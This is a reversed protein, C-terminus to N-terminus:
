QSPPNIKDSWNKKFSWDLVQIFMLEVTIICISFIKPHWGDLKERIESISIKIMSLIGLSHYNHQYATIFIEYYFTFHTKGRWLKEVHFHSRLMPYVACVLSWSCMLSLELDNQVPSYQTEASELQSSDLKIDTHPPPAYHSLPLWHHMHCVLNQDLPKSHDVLYSSESRKKTGALSQVKTM